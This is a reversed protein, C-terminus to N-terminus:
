DDTLRDAPRGIPAAVVLLPVCPSRTSPEVWRGCSTGSAQPEFLVLITRTTTAYCLNIRTSMRWVYVSARVCARVCAGKATVFFDDQGLQSACPFFEVEWVGPRFVVEGYCKGATEFILGAGQGLGSYGEENIDM